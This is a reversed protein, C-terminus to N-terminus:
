RRRGGGRLNDVLGWKVRAWIREHLFYLVTTYVNSVIMFGLAVNVRHTFVYIALFDLCVIVIRYTFAKVVSRKSTATREASPTAAQPIVGNSLEASAGRM